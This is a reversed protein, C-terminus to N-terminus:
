QKSIAIAESIAAIMANPCAMNKGAIDLATGHDPSTRIISLGLTVNVGVEFGLTKVPILAQDHYMCLAVDYTQRAKAHFMVDASVPDSVNIGKHRLHQIAPILIEKEEFGIIGNDGAHPNIGAIKIRPHQVKYQKRLSKDIVEVTEIIMQPTIANAVDKLPIHVTLPVAKLEPCSLMMVPKHYNGTLTHIKNAIYDTHGFFDPYIAHINDKNVPATVMADATGSLCKKVAIDITELIKSAYYSQCQGVTIEPFDVQHFTINNPLSDPFFRRDGIIEFQIDSFKTDTVAKSIIESGIGAPEGITLAITVM